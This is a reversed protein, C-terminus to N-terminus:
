EKVVVTIKLTGIEEVTGWITITMWISRIPEIGTGRTIFRSWIRVRKAM